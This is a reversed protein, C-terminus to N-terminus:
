DDITAEEETALVAGHVGLWILEWRACDSRAAIFRYEGAPLIAGAVAALDELALAVRDEGSGEGSGFAEWGAKGRFEFHYLV